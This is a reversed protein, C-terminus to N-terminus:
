PRDSVEIEQVYSTRIEEENPKESKLGLVWELLTLGMRRLEATVLTDFPKKCEEDTGYIERQKECKKWLEEETRIINM